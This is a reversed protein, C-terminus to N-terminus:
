AGVPVATVEDSKSPLVGAERYADTSPSLQLIYGQMAVNRSFKSEEVFETWQCAWGLPALEFTLAVMLYRPLGALKITMGAFDGKAKLGADIDALARRIADKADDSLQAHPLKL